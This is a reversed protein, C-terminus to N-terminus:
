VELGHVGFRFVFRTHEGIEDLMEMAARLRGLRRSSEIFEVSEISEIFEISGVSEVSEISGISGISEVSEISGISEVSEVSGISGISEVSGISGISEVSEISEGKGSTAGTGCVLRGSLGSQGFLGSPCQRRANSICVEFLADQLQPL